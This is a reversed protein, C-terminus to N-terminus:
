NETSGIILSLLLVVISNWARSCIIAFITSVKRSKNDLRVVIAFAILSLVRVGLLWLRNSRLSIRGMNGSM